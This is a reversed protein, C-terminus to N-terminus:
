EQGRGAGWGRKQGQKRRTMLNVQEGSAHLSAGGMWGAFRHRQGEWGGVQYINDVMRQELYPGLVIGQGRMREILKYAELAEGAAYYHEM